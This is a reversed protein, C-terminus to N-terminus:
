RLDKLLLDVRPITEEEACFPYGTNIAIHAQGNQIRANATSAAIKRRGVTNRTRHIAEAVLAVHKHNIRNRKGRATLRVVCCQCVFKLM